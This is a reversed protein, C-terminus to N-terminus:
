QGVVGYNDKYAILEFRNAGFYDELEIPIIDDDYNIRFYTLEVTGNFTVYEAMVVGWLEDNGVADFQGKPAYILGKFRSNRNQFSINGNLSIIVLTTSFPDGTVQEVSIDGDAIVVGSNALTGRITIRGYGKFYAIQNAATFYGVDFIDDKKGEGPEKVLDAIAVLGDTDILDWKMQQDLVINGSIDQQLEAIREDSLAEGIVVDGTIHANGKIVIDNLTYVAYNIYRAPLVVKATITRKMKTVQGTATLLCRKGTREVDVYYSGVGEISGSIDTFDYSPEYIIRHYVDQLGAEALYLAQTSKTQNAAILVDTSTITILAWGILTSVMLTIFVAIIGFGNERLPLPTKGM